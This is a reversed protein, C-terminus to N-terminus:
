GAVASAIALYIAISALDQVVTALPGSGFAPDLGARDLLWPLAMAAVTATSCAAFIALGVVLAVEGEGWRWWVVPTAVAALAMGIALGTALERGVMRRIAVGVSLGRVVV